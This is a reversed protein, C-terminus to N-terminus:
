KRLSADSYLPERPPNTQAVPSKPAHILGYLLPSGGEAFASTHESMAAETQRVASDEESRHGPFVAQVVQWPEPGAMKKSSAVCM